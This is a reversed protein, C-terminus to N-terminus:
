EGFITCKPPNVFGVTTMDVIPAQIGYPIEDRDNVTIVPGYFNDAVGNEKLVVSIVGWIPSLNTAMYGFEFCSYPTNLVAGRSPAVLVVFKPFYKVCSLQQEVHLYEQHHNHSIAKVRDATIIIAGSLLVVLFIRAKKLTVFPFVSWYFLFLTIVFLLTMASLLLRYAVFGGSAALIPMISVFLIFMAIALKQWIHFKQLRGPSRSCRNAVLFFIVTLVSAVLVAGQPNEFWLAASVYLTDAIKKFMILLSANLEVSYVGSPKGVLSDGFLRWMYADPLWRLLLTYIVCLTVTILIEEFAEKRIKAYEAEPAVLVKIASFVIFFLSAPPYILFSVALLTYAAIKHSTIKKPHANSLLSYSIIIIAFTILGSVFNTLLLINLVFPPLLLILLWFCASVFPDILFHKVTIRWAGWVCAMACVLSVMRGIALDSVTKYFMFQVNLLFGGLPRGIWFLHQTEPHKLSIVTNKYSWTTYDNHIGFKLMFAPLFAIFIGIVAAALILLYRRKM